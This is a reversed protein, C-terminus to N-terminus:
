DKYPNRFNKRFDVADFITMAIYIKNQYDKIKILSEYIKSFFAKGRMKNHTAAICGDLSVHSNDVNKNLYDTSLNNLLIGNSFLSTEVAPSIRKIDALLRLVFPKTLAEDGSIIINDCGEGIFQKSLEYWNEYEM